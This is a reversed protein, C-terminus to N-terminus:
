NSSMRRLLENRLADLIAKVQLENALGIRMMLKQGVSRAEINADRYKYTTSTAEIPIPEPLEPAELLNEIASLFRDNFRQHPYGLKGYSEQLLPYFHIYFDVATRVDIDQLFKLYDLYRESNKPAIVLDANTTATLFTGSAPQVPLIHPYAQHRPLNDITTVFRWIMRDNRFLLPLAKLNCAKALDSAFPGDSSALSPLEDPHAISKAASVSLPPTPSPSTNSAVRIPRESVPRVSSPQGNKVLAYFALGAIAMLAIWFFYKKM